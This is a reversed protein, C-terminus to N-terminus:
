VLEPLPRKLYWYRLYIGANTESTAVGTLEFGKGGFFNLLKHINAGDDDTGSYKKESGDPMTYYVGGLMGAFGTRHRITIYEWTHMVAEEHVNDM